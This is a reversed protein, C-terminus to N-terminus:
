RIEIPSWAVGDPQSGAPLYGTVTMTELDIIAVRDEQSLAVFATRSDPTVTIGQPGGSLALRGREARTARDLIRLAGGRYDPILAQRQDPTILIRYPWGLGSAATVVVGDRARVVSVTGEANSGVWVEDGAMSVTIAEPQSPVPLMRVTTGGAVDLESVSNSRINATWITRADGTIALMHSTSQGTPIVRVVTGDAVRVLVVNGTTESTVALLTDGPLFAIGHPRTYSGLDVTRAVRKGPIDIVTLTHGGAGQAGYDSVVALRGDRTTAVEHPGTGTPLEIVIRATALDV